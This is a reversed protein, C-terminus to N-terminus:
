FTDSLEISLRRGRNRSYFQRQALSGLRDPSYILREQELRWNLINEVQVSLRMGFVDKLEIGAEIEPRDRGYDLTQDLRYFISEEDFEAEVFWAYSTDPIDQRLEVEYFLTTTDNIQRTEGTLPDDIRSHALGGEFTLRGGALGANDLLLTGNAEIGYVTAGDINGPGESGDRFRIRDIPDEIFEVFAKVSGSLQTDDKRQLELEANWSQTPVINRNGTNAIDDVLSVTSVALGFDLQGVQREVKAQWTYTPNVAYSASIFGKPRVFDRSTRGDKIVDLKSYEVGISSQVNLADSLAWSHTLNTEARDEEVRVADPEDVQGTATFLSESDLVNLAGELAFQLDHNPAPAFSYEARLITESEDDVRDFTQRTPIQNDEAFYFLSNNDSNEFRYLGIIKLTGDFAPFAYDAGIEYNYEDEGNSAESGGTLGENTVATFQERSGSRINKLEGALNLNAVHDIRPTWSLNLNAFPRETSYYNGEIRDETLGGSGDFFQEEGEETFTFQEAGFSAVFALNDREGSLSVKGERLQPETGQEFRAGYEWSGSLKVDNTIINAVQGSLGPIDLSAGDLIDIRKVNSATIRSLIANAGLSKSSPRRGNILINLSAQGFGRAGGESGQITFGPIRSIMDAANQPQFDSFDAVTYSKNIAETQAM